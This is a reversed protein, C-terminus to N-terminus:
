QIAVKGYSRTPVGIFGIPNRHSVWPHPSFGPFDLPSHKYPISLSTHIDCQLNAIFLKV